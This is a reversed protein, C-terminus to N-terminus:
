KKAAAAAIAAAANSAALAASNAANSAALAASTTQMRLDRLETKLSAIDTTTQEAKVDQREAKKGLDVVSYGVWVVLALIIAQIVSQMRRELSESRAEHTVARRNDSM